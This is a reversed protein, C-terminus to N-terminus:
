AAEQAVVDTIQWAASRGRGGINKISGKKKLEQLADHIQGDTLDTENRFLVTNATTETDTARQIVGLLKEQPSGNGRFRPKSVTPPAFSAPAPAPPTPSVTGVGPAPAHDPLEADDGDLPEGHYFKIVYDLVYLEALNGNITALVQTRRVEAAKLVEVDMSM